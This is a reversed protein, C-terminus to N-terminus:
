GITAMLFCGGILPLILSLGLVKTMPLQSVENNPQFKIQAFEKITIVMNIILLIGKPATSNKIDVLSFESPDLSLQIEEQMERASAEQWTEGNNELFGGVLCFKGKHPEINRKTILVGWRRYYGHSEPDFVRLISITAPLPNFYTDQYCSFCKRPYKIQETFKVGCYSCFSNKFSM